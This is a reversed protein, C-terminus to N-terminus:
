CCWGPPRGNRPSPGVASAATICTWCSTRTRRTCRGSYRAPSDRQALHKTRAARGRSRLTWKRLRLGDTRAQHKPFLTDVVSQLTAYEMSATPPPGRLKRMVLKYQKGFPDADVSSILEKWCTTKSRLIAIKLQRKAERYV